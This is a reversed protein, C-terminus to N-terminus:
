LELPKNKPNFSKGLKVGEFIVNIREKKLDKSKFFVKLINKLVKLWRYVVGKLGDQKGIYAENRFGYKYRQIREPVDNSIDCGINTGIKHIVKSTTVVYSPYKKTIRRTYEWDDGWIYFDGIPAGVDRVVSIPLFLSVFTAYQIPIIEKEFESLALKRMIDKRQVNMTCITGDTWLAMSSFFGFSKIREAVKLFSELASNTPITDDDMIWIYDYSKKAVERIGFEFGGAGGLNAGTNFYYIERNSLYVELAEKTGDTSANDIIYVSLSAEANQNFLSEICELLLEKRNYTVVVAAISIMKSM